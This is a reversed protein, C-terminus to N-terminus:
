WDSSLGGRRNGTCVSRVACSKCGATKYYRQKEGEREPTTYRYTLQKGEPCRYSDTASGYIFDEKTFLDKKLKPSVHPKPIYTVIGGSECKSVQEGSYYGKDAVVDLSNVGLVKRTATAIPALQQRDTTANTVEHYAILKHRSDVATQVNHCVELGQGVSM